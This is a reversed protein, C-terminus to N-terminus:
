DVHDVELWDLAESLDRFVRIESPREDTLLQAMRAMGFSLESDCVFARRTEKSWPGQGLLSRLDAATLAGKTAGRLDWLHRYTPVFGPDRALEDMHTRLDAISVTGTLTSLVIQRASDIQFHAPM